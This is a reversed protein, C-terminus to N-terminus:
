GHGPIKYVVEIDDMSVDIDSDTTHDFFTEPIQDLDEFDKLGAGSTSYLRMVQELLGQSALDKLLFSFTWASSPELIKTLRSATYVRDQEKGQRLLNELRKITDRESPFKTILSKLGSESMSM